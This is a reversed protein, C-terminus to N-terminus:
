HILSGTLEVYAKLGHERIFQDSRPVGTLIVLADCDEPVDNIGYRMKMEYEFDNKDTCIIIERNPPRRNELKKLRTRLNM